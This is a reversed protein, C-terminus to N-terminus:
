MVQLCGLNIGNDGFKVQSWEKKYIPLNLQVEMKVKEWNKIINLTKKNKRIKNCNIL